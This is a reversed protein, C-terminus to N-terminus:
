FNIISEENCSMDSSSEDDISDDNDDSNYYTERSKQEKNNQWDNNEEKIIEIHTSFSFKKRSKNKNHHNLENKIFSLLELHIKNAKISILDINKHTDLSNSIKTTSSM